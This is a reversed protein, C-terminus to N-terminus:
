KQLNHKQVPRKKIKEVIEVEVEVEARVTNNVAVKKNVIANMADVEIEYNQNFNRSLGSQTYLAADESQVEKSTEANENSPVKEPPEKREVLSSKQIRIATKIDDLINDQDLRINSVILRRQTEDVNITYLLHLALLTKLLPEAAQQLKATATDFRLFYKDISEDKDRMMKIVEIWSESAVDMKPKGFWQEFRDLIQDIVDEDEANISRTQVELEVRTKKDTRGSEQLSEIFELYKTKSSHSKDWLKLRESFNKYPETKDWRPCKVRKELTQRRLADVIGRSADVTDTNPRTQNNREILDRLLDDRRNM